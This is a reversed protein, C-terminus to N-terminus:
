RRRRLTDIQAAIEDGDGFGFRDLPRVQFRVHKGRDHIM